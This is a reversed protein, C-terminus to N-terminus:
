ETTGGDFGPDRKRTSMARFYALLGDLDTESLHPHAPMSTYRTAQPNRIYARIQAEPRYEVISKPVNLDPGIRGGEGNIAHCSACAEQFRAYGQWGPDQEPLGLPVTAPFAESFPAIEIRALQYPWPTDHPDSQDSGTWILYFPAPDVQRRDIPSFRTPSGSAIRASEGFALHGGDELLVRGAVPRTYGDLARLLLGERALGAAGDRESFGLDLVCRLPLARYRMTRQHYPDAVDIDAEPCASRLSALSLSRARGEGAHFTLTTDLDADAGRAIVAPAARGSAGPQACACFGLCLLVLLCRLPSPIGRRTGVSFSEGARRLAIGKM